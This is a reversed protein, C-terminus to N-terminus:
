RTPPPSSSLSPAPIGALHVVAAAEGLPSRRRDITGAARRVAEVAQGFDTLDAAFFHCLTERPPARDVNMVRHGHEILERIVARGAKGSGGTVVVNTMDPRLTEALWATNAAASSRLRTPPGSM